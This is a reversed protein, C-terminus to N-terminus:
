IVSSIKFPFSCILIQNNSNSGNQLISTLKFVSHTFFHSCNMPYDLEVEYCSNERLLERLFSFCEKKSQLNNKSYLLVSVNKRIFLAISLGINYTEMIKKVQNWMEDLIIDISQQNYNGDFVFVSRSRLQHPQVCISVSHQLSTTTDLTLQDGLGLTDAAQQFSAYLHNRLYFLQFQKQFYSFFMAFSLSFFLIPM